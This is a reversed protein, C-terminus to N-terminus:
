KELLGLLDKYSPPFDELHSSDHLVNISHELFALEKTMKKKKNKEWLKM